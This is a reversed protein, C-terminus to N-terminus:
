EGIGVGAICVALGGALALTGDWLLAVTIGPIDGDLAREKEVSKAGGRVRVRGEKANREGRRRRRGEEGEVGEVSYM